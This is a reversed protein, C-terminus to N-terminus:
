DIHTHITQMIREKCPSGVSNNHAGYSNVVGLVGNGGAKLTRKNIPVVNKGEFYICYASLLLYCKTNHQQSWLIFRNHHQWPPPSSPWGVNDSKETRVDSISWLSPPCSVSSFLVHILQRFITNQLLDKMKSLYYPKIYKHLRKTKIFHIKDQTRQM